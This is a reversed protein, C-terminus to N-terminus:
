RKIDEIYWEIAIFCNFGRCPVNIIFNAKTMKNCKM